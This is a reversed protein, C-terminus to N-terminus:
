VKTLESNTIAITLAHSGVRPSTKSTAISAWASPTYSWLTVFCSPPRSCEAPASDPLEDLASEMLSNITLYVSPYRRSRPPAKGSPTDRMVRPPGASSGLREILVLDFTM